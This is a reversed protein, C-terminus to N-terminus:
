KSAKDCNVNMISPLKLFLAHALLKEGSRLSWAPSTSVLAPSSAGTAQKHRHVAFRCGHAAHHRHLPWPTVSPHVTLSIEITNRGLFQVSPALKLRLRGLRLSELSDNFHLYSSNAHRLFVQAEPTQESETTGLMFMPFSGQTKKRYPEQHTSKKQIKKCEQPANLKNAGENLHREQAFLILPKLCRRASLLQTWKWLMALAKLGSPPKQTHKSLLNRFSSYNRKVEIWMVIFLCRPVCINPLSFYNQM